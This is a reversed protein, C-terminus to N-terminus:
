SSLPISGAVRASTVVAKDSGEVTVPLPPQDYELEYRLVLKLDRPLTFAVALPNPPMAGVLLRYRGQDLKRFRHNASLLEFADDSELTLRLERPQGAPALDLYVTRRDPLTESRETFTILTPVAPVPVTFERQRTTVSRQEGAINVAVTGIPAPSSLHLTGRGTDLDITARAVLPQLGDGYPSITLAHVSGAAILVALVATGPHLAFRRRYVPRMRRAGDFAAVGCHALLAFPLVVAAVLLDDAPSAFLVLEAFPLAPLALLGGAAAVIWLPAPVIWGLRIWPNRSTFALLACLTAWLLPFALAVNVAAAAGVLALLLVIAAAWYFRAVPQRRPRPVGRLGTLHRVMSAALLAVALKLTMFLLPSQHWLTPMGRVIPLVRIAATGIALAAFTAAALLPLRWIDRWLPALLFRLRSSVAFAYIVALALTVIVAILYAPETIILPSGRRNFLLYHRDWTAPVGEAFSALLLELFEQMAEPWLDHQASDFPRYRGALRLAPYGAEHFPALRSRQALGLRVLHITNTRALRLPQGADRLATVVRDFLWPPSEIGAGGAYPVLHSPVGRLDLYLVAVPAGAQFEQLFLRSGLPYGREAPGHEAGLFLFRVTIPPPQPARALGRAFGLALAPAIGAAGPEVQRRWAGPAAPDPPPAALPVAVVLSDPRSGPITVEVNAALSHVFGADALARLRPTLGAATLRGRVYDAASLEAASGESYPGLASLFAVDADFAARWAAGEAQPAQQAGLAQTLVLLAGALVPAAVAPATIAGRM